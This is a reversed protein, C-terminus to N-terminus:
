GGTEQTWYEQLIYYSQKLREHYAPYKGLPKLAFEGMEITNRGNGAGASISDIKIYEIGYNNYYDDHIYMKVPDAFNLLQWPIRIEVFDEGACFDALSNFDESKPNANGYTMLGTEYTARVKYQYPNEIDYEQFSLQKDWISGSSELDTKEYYLEEQLLMNIRVFRSSDKQPFVKSFFNHASIEGYYLASLMDYREQVWVRSSEKGNIEIVFDAADSMTIGLNKAEKSGSEPTIDLPLYLAEKEIDFDTVMFYLFKEDYKMYLPNNEETVLDQKKWETNDGDVYCISEEKGPDFALLGFAQESSQYDSWYATSELNVSAETNWSSKYWEDQWESVIGGSCKAALIDEYLSVLSEGQGTESLHGANRRNGKEIALIGRSSPVGFETIVVPMNHHDSLAQLYRRYTNEGQVDTGAVTTLDVQYGYFDPYYPYVNYSAFQGALFGDKSHIHDVDIAASKRFYKKLEEDYALPDEMTGNNFSILTQTGYKKTEYEIVQDGLYALFIEFNTADETYLYKGNYQEKQSGSHDTYVVLNTEWESGLVYAYIWRSIDKSYSLPFFGNENNQKYRGHVVDIMDKCDELLPKYFEKDFASYISNILYDDVAVGQILYLPSPNDANYEYFADYFEKGGINYIRIVNAGMDQIQGFWRLYEEKSVGNETSYKGPKSFGVNVGKIQFEEFGSGQDLYLFGNEAKSHYAIDQTAPIYLVGTYFYLYEWLMYGIIIVFTVAIVKKM